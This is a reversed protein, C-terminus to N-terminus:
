SLKPLVVTPAIPSQSSLQTFITLIVDIKRVLVHTGVANDDIINQAKTKAASM